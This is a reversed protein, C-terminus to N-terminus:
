ARSDYLKRIGAIAELSRTVEAHALLHLLLVDRVSSPGHTEMRRQLDLRLETLTPKQSESM